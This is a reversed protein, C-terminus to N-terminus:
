VGGPMGAFFLKSFFGGIASEKESAATTALADKQADVGMQAMVINNARDVSSESSKWAMSMLDRERQWIQDITSATFANAAKADEANAENQAASNLTAVGQRWQANAQSIVLGNTANFQDRQNKMDSNFKALANTESVDLQTM